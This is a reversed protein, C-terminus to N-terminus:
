LNGSDMATVKLDLRGVQADDPTGTFIQSTANFSLCSPVASGDALSASYTLVGNVDQDAFPNAPVGISLPADEPVTQDALARAVTPAHNIPGDFLSPLSAQSGDAFVLTETVLSGNAGTSDFNTLILQDTGRSGVQVTLTRAAQDQTFTLDSQLIGVGFL